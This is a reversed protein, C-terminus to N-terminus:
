FTEANARDITTPLVYSNLGVLFFVSISVWPMGMVFGCEITLVLERFLDSNPHHFDLMVRSKAKM